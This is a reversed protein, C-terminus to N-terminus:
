NLYYCLGSACSFNQSTVRAKSCYASTSKPCMDKINDLELDRRVYYDGVGDLQERNMAHRLNFKTDGMPEVAKDNGWSKNVRQSWQM